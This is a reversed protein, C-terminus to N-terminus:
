FGVCVYVCLNCVGRMCECMLFRTWVCVWVNCVGCM